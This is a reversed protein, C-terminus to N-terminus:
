SPRKERTLGPNLDRCPFFKQFFLFFSVLFPEFFSKITWRHNRHIVTGSPCHCYRICVQHMPRSKPCFRHHQLRCHVNAMLSTIVVPHHQTSRLIEVQMRSPLIKILGGHSHSSKPTALLLVAMVSTQMTPFIVRLVLVVSPNKSRWSSWHRLWHVPGAQLIMREDLAKLWANMRRKMVHQWSTPHRSRMTAIQFASGRAPCCHGVVMRRQLKFRLGSNSGGFRNRHRRPYSFTVLLLQRTAMTHFIWARQLVRGLVVLIMPVGGMDLCCARNLM